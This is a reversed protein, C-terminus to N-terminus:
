LHRLLYPSEALTNGAADKLRQHKPLGLLWHGNQDNNFYDTESQRYVQGSADYTVTRLLNGYAFDYHYTTKTEVCDTANLTTTQFCTYSRQEPSYVFGDQEGWDTQTAAYLGGRRTTTTPLQLAAM